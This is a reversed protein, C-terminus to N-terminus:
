RPKEKSSPRKNNHDENDENTIFTVFAKLGETKKLKQVLADADERVTFRGIRVKYLKANKTSASKKIYVKYGRNELRQKLAEADKTNKFAGVQVTCSSAAMVKEEPKAPPAKQVNKDPKKTEETIVQETKNEQPLLELKEKTPEQPVVPTVEAPVPVPIAVAQTQVSEQRTGAQGVFYGLVFGLTSVSVVIIIMLKKPSM